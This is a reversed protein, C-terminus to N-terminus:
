ISEQWRQGRLFIHWTEGSGLTEILLLRGRYPVRTM